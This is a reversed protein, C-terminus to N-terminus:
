DHAPLLRGFGKFPALDIPHQFLAAHMENGGSEIFNRHDVLVDMLDHVSLLIQHLDQPLKVRLDHLHGRVTLPRLISCIVFSRATMYDTLASPMPNRIESKTGGPRFSAASIKSHVLHNPRRESTKA